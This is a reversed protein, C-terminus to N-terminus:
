ANTPNFNTSPAAFNASKAQSAADTGVIGFEPAIRDAALGV